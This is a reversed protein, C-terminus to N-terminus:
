ATAVVNPRTMAEKRRGALIRKLLNTNGKQKSPMLAVVKLAAEDKCTGNVDYPRMPPAVPMPHSSCTVSDDGGNDVSCSREHRSRLEACIIEKTKPSSLYDFGGDDMALMENLSQSRPKRESQIKTHVVKDFLIADKPSALAKLQKGLNLITEQCEILKESATSIELRMQVHQDENRSVCKPGEKAPFRELQLKSELSSVGHQNGKNIDSNSPKGLENITSEGDVGHAMMKGTEKLANLEARLSSAKGESEECKSVPIKNRFIESDDDAKYGIDMLSSVSVIAMQMKNPTRPECMGDTTQIGTHKIVPVVELGSSSNIELNKIITERMDSVDQLSFCHSIIWDLTINIELVFREVDTSGYLLENCGLVFNQLVSTLESTKWLFARAVYGTLTNSRDGESGGSLVVTSSYDKSSRQVVGEILEILKLVAKEIKHQRLQDSTEIPGDVTVLEKGSSERSERRSDYSETPKADCALALKEIEEFDDMFSLDSVGTSKCSPTTLKGKKFHELESILASAWSSSCSVNDENCGDESISSLPNEVVTPSCKVLDTAVRGRSLEELQAEVQSLKSTTRALMTRSYQLEGDKSSLSEKMTKNEDEMAHLRALLSSSEHSADYSNQVLNGSNFSTTSNFRRTRTIVANNGLTEVENRMKAIAAPGPLRKRVMSRLRQCEAELKTIKKVNELHQKHAADASKLNFKREESRIDLQKQLMCVEYRLSSNLKDASELKVELNKFNSEIVGKAETLESIMKEKMSLMESLKRNEADLSAIINIKEVVDGELREVKVQEHSILKATDKILLEREVMAVNLAEDLHCIRQEIAAKQDLTDDLQTKIAIAEGEAKEWGLIAEEAVKAQKALIADKEVCEAQAFSIQENLCQLSRELRAIKEKEQERESINAKNKTSITRESSKKRWLWTKNDM